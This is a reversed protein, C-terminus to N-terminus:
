GPHIFKASEETLDSGIKMVNKVCTQKTMRRSTKSPIESTLGISIHHFESVFNIPKYLSVNVKLM